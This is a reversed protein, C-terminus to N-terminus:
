EREDEIRVGFEQLFKELSERDGNENSGNGDWKLKVREPFGGFV